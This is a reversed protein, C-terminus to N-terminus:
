GSVPALPLSRQRIIQSLAPTIVPYEFKYGAELM